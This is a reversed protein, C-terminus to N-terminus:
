CSLCSDADDGMLILILAIVGILCWFLGMSTLLLIGSHEIIDMDNFFEKNENEYELMEKRVVDGVAKAPIHPMMEAYFPELHEKWFQENEEAKRSVGSKEIEKWRANIEENHLIDEMDKKSTAKYIRKKKKM